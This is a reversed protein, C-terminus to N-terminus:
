GRSFIELSEIGDGGVEFLDLVRHRDGDVPVDLVAIHLPAEELVTIVRPQPHISEITRAYFARIAERGEIRGGSGYLLVGDETYLDAAGTGGARVRAFVERVRDAGRLEDDARRARETHASSM